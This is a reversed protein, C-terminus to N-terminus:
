LIKTIKSGNTDTQDFSSIELEDHDLQILM